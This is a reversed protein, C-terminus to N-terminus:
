KLITDLISKAIETKKAKQLKKVNGNKSFIMVENYDSNFGIDNRSIDNAVLYDCGKNKIKQLANKELNESEACFGV